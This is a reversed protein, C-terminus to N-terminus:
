AKLGAKFDRVEHSVWQRDEKLTQVTERPALSNEQFGTMANKALMAATALLAIAVILSSLWYNDLADGLAIILFATLAFAGILGAGAAIALRIAPKVYGLVGERLELKALAIEDRVLKSADQGLRGLLAGVPVDENNDPITFRGDTRTYQPSRTTREHAAM